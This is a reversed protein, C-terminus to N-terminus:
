HAATPPEPLKLVMGLKLKAPDAGIATKNLEYIKDVMELKGYLKIAIKHLSDGSQVRYESRPDIAPPEAHHVAPIASGAGPSGTDATPTTPKESPKVESPDPYNIEMGPRLKSPNVTPNARVLYPYFNPSGYLAAAITSFTEGQQVKHTHMKGGAPAAAATNTSPAPQPATAITRPSITTTPPAITARSPPSTITSTEPQDGAASSDGSNISTSDPTRTVSVLSDTYLRRYWPDNKDVPAVASEKATPKAAPASPQPKVAPKDSPKDKDSARRGDGAASSEGTAPTAQQSDGADAYQQQSGGGMEVPHRNSKGNPTITLYVVIVALMVGGITMGLIVDKRM